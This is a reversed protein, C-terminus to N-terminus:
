NLMLTHNGAMRLTIHIHYLASYKVEEVQKMEIKFRVM